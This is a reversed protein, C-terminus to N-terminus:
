GSDDQHGHSSSSQDKKEAATDAPPFFLSLPAAKVQEKFFFMVKSFSQIRTNRSRLAVSLALSFSVWLNCFSILSVFLFYLLFTFFGPFDFAMAYGLNGSAFAVHRIGLPLGLLMGIYATSGLLVGFFFNGVLAGYNEHIYDALAARQKEPLLPRLLPHNKLRDRLGIYAARNDFFGATLGAVFLWLGAICAHLLALSAFPKLEYIQYECAEHSLLPFGRLLAYVWGIAFALSLAVSVNGVIAIFQSRAVQVLLAAIKKPNAGGHEGQQIAEALRAATMAPQKTAVTFHLIHILMFGFGYNLSVLITEPLPALALGMIRIKILAMLAIIIGGGAGSRLMAFYDKRSRTIYHEGHDSANETISRSLLRINRQFLARVSRRQRSATVLEKFLRIATKETVKQRMPTLIDLIDQIRKLTQDLRELLYSLPISTGKTVSKKRFATVAQMCQDLLVRAHADDELERIEGHIWAEYHRCYRAIERQLAVFASDRSVIRPELRVLDPELEEGAVWISLMEMAYLLESISKELLRPADGSEANWLIRFLHMWSEDPLDQVWQPDEPHHFILSLADSLSDGNLPLPNIHEYIRKGLERMFGQRSFLGLVAFALFYNARGLWEQLITAIKESADPNEEQAKDLLDIRRCVTDMNEGPEPRLWDTIQRLLDTASTNGSELSAFIRQPTPRVRPAM